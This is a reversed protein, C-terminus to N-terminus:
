IQWNEIIKLNIEILQENYNFSLDSFICHLCLNIVEKAVQDRLILWANFKRLHFFNKKEEFVLWIVMSMKSSEFVEKFKMTSYNRILM